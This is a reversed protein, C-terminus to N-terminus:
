SRRLAERDSPWNPALVHWQEPARRILVELELAVAQTVRAVDDRLRGERDTPIPPRVVAEHVGDDTFYVGCPILPAGTRLALLAPGSPLTTTEGFFEVEVGNGAIDRDALLCIVHREKVARAVESAAKPGLPVVNMGLSRRFEAFWEFVEPPELPEVVATVPIDMIRTLWFAAWEWGGLHPIVVLPGYGDSRAQELHEYGQFAFRGDLEAESISPLRFSEAWYRGYSEFTADIARELARGSLASGHIRRLNREVVLRQDASTRGIARAAFRTLGDRVPAPAVRSFLSGARYADVTPSWAV